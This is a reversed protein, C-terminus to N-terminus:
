VIAQNLYACRLKLYQPVNEAKWQAGSIKIRLGIRKITSEVSGSGICIGLEQYLSYDPMRSRHKNVYTRFNVVAKRHHGEFEALAQDIEGSWLYNKVRKLRKNSGGVKYLNEVLHYFFVERRQYDEGIKAMINWIGEHGDGLCTIAGTRLQRNTWNILEENDQFFAACVEGHLSVAKYDKWECAKGKPTRLRVKGGDVSLAEVTRKVNLEPFKYKEILRHQCSRSIKIGTMFVIDKEAQQFSESAVLRLCCKELFPSLRTNKKLGLKQAQRQTIEV